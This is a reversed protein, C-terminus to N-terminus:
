EELSLIDELTNRVQDHDPGDEHEYYMCEKTNGFNCEEMKKTDDMLLYADIKTLEKLNKTIYICNKCTVNFYNVDIEQEMGDLCETLISLALSAIIGTYGVGGIRFIKDGIYVYSEIDKMEEEQIQRNKFLTSHLHIILENGVEEIGYNFNQSTILSVDGFLFGKGYRTPYLLPKEIFMYYYKKTFEIDCNGDIPYVKFKVFDDTKEFMETKFRIKTSM